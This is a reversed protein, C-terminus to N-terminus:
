RRREREAKTMQWLKADLDARKRRIEAFQASTLFRRQGNPNGTPGWGSTIVASPPKPLQRAM